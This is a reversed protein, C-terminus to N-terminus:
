SIGHQECWQRFKHMELPKLATYGIPFGMLWDIWDPNLKGRNAELETGQLMQWHGTGGVLTDSGARPTPYKMKVVQELTPRFRASSYGGIKNARPTPLMASRRVAETLSPGGQAKPSRCKGSADRTKPTPWLGYDTESIPREWKLLRYVVGDCAIGAKPLTAYSENLIGPLLCVQFTKLSATLPDLQAYPTLRQPGCTAPTTQEPENAPLALPSALSDGQLWTRLDEISQPQVRSWSSVCTALSPPTPCSETMLASGSLESATITLNSM